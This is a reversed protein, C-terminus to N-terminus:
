TAGKAPVARVAITIGNVAPHRRDAVLLAHVSQSALDDDYGSGGLPDAPRHRQFQGPVTRSDGNMIPIGAVFCGCGRQMAATLGEM